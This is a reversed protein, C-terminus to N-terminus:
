KSTDNKKNKNNLWIPPKPIYTRPTKDLSMHIALGLFGLGLVGGIIIIGLIQIDNMIRKKIAV